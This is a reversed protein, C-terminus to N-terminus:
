SSLRFLRILAEEGGDDLRRMWNQISMETLLFREATQAVTWGRAARLRLIQMRQIPGYQRIAAQAEALAEGM